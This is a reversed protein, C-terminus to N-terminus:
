CEILGLLSQAHKPLGNNHRASQENNRRERVMIYSIDADRRNIKNIQM